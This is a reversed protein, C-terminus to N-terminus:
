RDRGACRGLWRLRQCARSRRGAAYRTCPTLRRRREFGRPSGPQPAARPFAWPRACAAVAIRRWCRVERLVQLPQARHRDLVQLATDRQRQGLPYAAWRGCRRRARPPTRCRAPRAAAAPRRCHPCSRAARPALWGTGGPREQMRCRRRNAHSRDAIVVVSLVCFQSIQVGGWQRASMLHGACVRCPPHQRM